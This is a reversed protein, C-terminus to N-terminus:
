YELGCGPCESPVRAEKDTCDFLIQTSCKPCGIVLHSLEKFDVTLHKIM